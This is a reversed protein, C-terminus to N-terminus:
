SGKMSNTIEIVEERRAEQGACNGCDVPENTEIYAVDTSNCWTRGDGPGNIGPLHVSPPFDPNHSRTKVNSM